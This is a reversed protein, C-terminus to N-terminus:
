ELYNEVAHIHENTDFVDPIEGNALFHVGIMCVMVDAAKFLHLLPDPAPHGENDTPASLTLKLVKCNSLVAEDVVDPVLVTDGNKDRNSRLRETRERNEDSVFILDEDSILKIM